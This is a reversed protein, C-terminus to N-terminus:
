KDFLFLVAVVYVVYSSSLMACSLVLRVGVLRSILDYGKVRTEPRQDPWSVSTRIMPPPFADM